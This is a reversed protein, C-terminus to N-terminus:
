TPSNVYHALNGLKHHYFLVRRMERAAFRSGYVVDAHGELLPKLVGPYEGPDYELDADQIIAYEGTM